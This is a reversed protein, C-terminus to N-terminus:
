LIVGDNIRTKSAHVHGMWEEENNPRLLRFLVNILDVLFQKGLLCCVHCPMTQSDEDVSRVVNQVTALPSVEKSCLM